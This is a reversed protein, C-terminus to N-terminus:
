PGSEEKLDGFGQVTRLNGSGWFGLVRFLQLRFEPGRFCPLKAEVRQWWTADLSHDRKPYIKLIPTTGLFTLARLSWELLNDYLLVHMGVSTVLKAGLSLM